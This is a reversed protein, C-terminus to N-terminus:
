KLPIVIKTLLESEPVEGPSNYYYEYYVGAPEYGQEGIWKMIIKYPEDMESYAGQYMCSVVQGRLLVGAKIEDKGPLVRAAPFGMEVDLDLMDLNYYATYPANVPQEGLENMYNMIAGYGEGIVRPLNEMATRLRISLVPQEAQEELKLDFIM